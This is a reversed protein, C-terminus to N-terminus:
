GPWAPTPDRLEDAVTRFRRRQGTKMLHLALKLRHQPAVLRGKKSRSNFWTCRGDPNANADFKICALAGDLVRRCPFVLAHSGDEDIVALELDLDYPTSSIPQWM